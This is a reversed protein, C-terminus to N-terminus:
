GQLEEFTSERHLLSRIDFNIIEEGHGFLALAEKPISRCLDTYMSMIYDRQEELEEVSKRLAKNEARLELLEGSMGDFLENTVTKNDLADDISCKDCVKDRLAKNEAELEARRYMDKAIKEATNEDVDIGYSYNVDHQAGTRSM